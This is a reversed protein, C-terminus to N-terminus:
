GSRATSDRTILETKIQGTMSVALTNDHSDGISGVSASEIAAM